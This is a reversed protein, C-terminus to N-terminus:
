SKTKENEKKSELVHTFGNIKKDLEKSDKIIEELIHSMENKEKKLKEEFEPNSILVNYINAAIREINDVRESLRKITKTPFKRQHEIIAGLTLFDVTIMAMIADLIDHGILYLITLVITIVTLFLFLYGLRM